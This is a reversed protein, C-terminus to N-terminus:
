PICLRAANNRHQPVSRHYSRRPVRRRIPPTRQGPLPRKWRRTTRRQDRDHQRQRRDAGFRFGTRRVRRRLIERDLVLDPVAIVELRGFQSEKFTDLDALMSDLANGVALDLRRAIDVRLDRAGAVATEPAAAPSWM